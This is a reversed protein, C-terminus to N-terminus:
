IQLIEVTFGAKCKVKHKHEYMTNGKEMTHQRMKFSLEKQTKGVYTM